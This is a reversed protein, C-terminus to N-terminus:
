QYIPLNDPAPGTTGAPPLERTRGAARLAKEILEAQTRLPATDIKVHPVLLDIVEILKAAARHDPYGADSASVLLVDVPIKSTLGAILMAGSVGGIIGDSMARAGASKYVAPLSSSGAYWVLEEPSKGDTPEADAPHPVVGELGLIRGSTLTTGLDLIASAVPNILGPLLPFESLVLGLDKRGYVRLPPSVGGSMIVALPPFDESLLSGIRPLKLVQRIYHGAVTPALGASPFCSLLYSGPEPMEVGSEPRWTVTM